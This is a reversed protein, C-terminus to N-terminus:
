SRVVSIRDLPYWHAAAIIEETNEYGLNMFDIIRDEEPFLSHCYRPFVTDPVIGIFDNGGVMDLIERAERLHFPIGAEQLAVAMRVTEEVRVVSSGALLLSWDNDKDLVGLSIHTSNGGRCIEWPHAGMREGGHYWQRFDRSSDPDISLLGGDRGDAMRHYKEVPSFAKGSEGFYDNADYCVECFRLFDAATMDNLLPWCENKDQADVIRRLTEIWHPGLREDLRIADEGLIEWYERRRIWGKRKHYSLHRSLSKNYGDEDKEINSILDKVTYKLWSLLERIYEFYPDEDTGSTESLDITFVLNSNFYFFRKDRYEATTFQYWKSQDPYESIWFKEFDKRNDVFGEEKFEDYDGFDEINGRPVEIWLSRVQDDGKPRVPGMLNYIEQLMDFINRNVPLSRHEVLRLINDIQPAYLKM